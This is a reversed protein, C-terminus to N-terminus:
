FFFSKFSVIARAYLSSSLPKTDFSRTKITKYVFIPINRSSLPFKKNIYRKYVNQSNQILYNFQDGNDNSSRQIFETYLLYTKPNLSLFLQVHIIVELICLKFSIVRIDPKTFPCCEKKGYWCEFNCSLESSQKLWYPCYHPFELYDYLNKM